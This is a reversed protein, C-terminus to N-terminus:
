QQQTEWFQEDGIKFQQFLPQAEKHVANLESKDLNFAKLVSVWVIFMYSLCDSLLRCTHALVLKEAEEASRQNRDWSLSLASEDAHLFHSSIAYNHLMTRITSGGKSDDLRTELFSIIEPFSWKQEVAQRNKKTWKSRTANEEDDTLVLPKIGKETSVSSDMKQILIKAKDSRRLRNIEEMDNWFENIMGERESDEAYCVFLIHLVAEMISRMIIEADWLRGNQILIILSQSRDGLFYLHAHIFNVVIPNSQSKGELTKWLGDRCLSFIRVTENILENM